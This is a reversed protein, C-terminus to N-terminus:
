RGDHEVPPHHGAPIGLRRLVGRYARDGLQGGQGRCARSGGVGAAAITAVEAGVMSFIVTVVGVTVASIGNPFFGGHATLNSFDLEKDPWLGIM